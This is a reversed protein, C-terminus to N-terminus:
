GRPTRRTALEELTPVTGSEIWRVLLPIADAPIPKKGNEWLSITKGSASRSLGWFHTDSEFCEVAGPM